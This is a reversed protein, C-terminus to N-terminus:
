ARAYTPLRVPTAHVRSSRIGVAVGAWVWVVMTPFPAQYPNFFGVVIFCVAIAILGLKWRFLPLAGRSFIAGGIGWFAVACWLLAGVIGLEVAYALYADHLPLPQEPGGDISIGYGNMPYSPSQRFYALSDTTFRDWGFGFLPKAQLMLLGATTQNERAWVSEHDNVRHSAKSALTPSLLLAGGILISCALAGPLLWRRGARTALAGFVVGVGAGIWVGRELTLFCAFLSAMGAIAAFCRYRLRKWQTFAITSAVACSFTAIGEAVSSQFPGSARQGPLEADVHVIYRPFVLAHPGISEFIATFGLYAGLAALTALLLDRDRQESFIAPAALFALYPAIGFQDFLTLFGTENTLTHSAIASAIVYAVAIGMLLHIGRLEIRPTYAAGPARLLFQLLVVVLLLRDFPLGGLGM